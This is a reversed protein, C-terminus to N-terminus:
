KKQSIVGHKGTFTLSMIDSFVKKKRKIRPTTHLGSNWMTSRGSDPRNNWGRFFTIIVKSYNSSHSNDPSVSTNSFVQRLAVEDVVFGMLGSSPDFTLLQPPFGSSHCPHPVRGLWRPSFGSGVTMTKIWILFRSVTVTRNWFRVGLRWCWSSWFIGKM